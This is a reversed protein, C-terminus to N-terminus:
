AEPKPDPNTNTDAVCLGLVWSVLLVTTPLNRAM